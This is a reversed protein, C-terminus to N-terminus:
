LFWIAQTCILLAVCNISRYTGLISSKLIQIHFHFFGFGNVVKYLFFIRPTEFTVRHDIVSWCWYKWSKEFESRNPTMLVIDSITQFYVPYTLFTNLGKFINEKISCGKNWRLNPFWLLFIVSYNIIEM